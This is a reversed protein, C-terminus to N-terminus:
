NFSPPQLKPLQHHICSAVSQSRTAIDRQPSNQPLLHNWRRSPQPLVRVLGQAGWWVPLYGEQYTQLPYLYLLFTVWSSSESCSLYSNHLTDKSWNKNHFRRFSQNVYAKDYIEAYNNLHGSPLTLYEKPSSTNMLHCYITINRGGVLLLYPGDTRSAHQRQVDACSHLGCARAACRRKRIPRFEKPCFNRSVRAGSRSVCALSRTQFGNSDSCSEPCQRFSIDNM